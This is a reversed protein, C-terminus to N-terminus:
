GAEPAWESPRGEPWTAYLSLGSVLEMRLDPEPQLGLPEYLAQTRQAPAESEAALLPTRLFPLRPESCAAQIRTGKPRKGDTDGQALCTAQRPTRTM